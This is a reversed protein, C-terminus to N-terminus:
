CIELMCTECVRLCLWFSGNEANNKGWNKRLRKLVRGDEAVLWSWEPVSPPVLM